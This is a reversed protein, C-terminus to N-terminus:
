TCGGVEVRDLVRAKWIRIEICRYMMDREQPIHSASALTCEDCLYIRYMPTDIRMSDLMLMHRSEVESSCCLPIQIKVTGFQIIAEARSSLGLGYGM